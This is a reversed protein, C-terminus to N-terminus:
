KMDKATIDVIAACVGGDSARYGGCPCSLVHRAM